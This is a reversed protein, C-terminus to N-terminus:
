LTALPQSKLLMEDIHSNFWKITGTHGLHRKMVVSIPVGEKQWDDISEMIKRRRVAYDLGGLAVAFGSKPPTQLDSWVKRLDEESYGNKEFAKRHERMFHWLVPNDFFGSFIGEAVDGGMAAYVGPLIKQTEGSQESRKQTAWAIGGGISVGAPLISEYHSTKSAFDDTIERTLDLLHKPDGAAFPDCHAYTYAFVDYGLDVLREQAPKITSFDGQYGAVLLAARGDDLGAFEYSTCYELTKM